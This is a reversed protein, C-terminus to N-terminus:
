IAYFRFIVIRTMSVGLIKFLREFIVFLAFFYAVMRSTLWVFAFMIRMVRPPLSKRSNRSRRKVTNLLFVQLDKKAFNYFFIYIDGYM